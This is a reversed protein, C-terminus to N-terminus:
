VVVKVITAVRKPQADVATVTSTMTCGAGKVTAVGAVCPTHVPDTPPMTNLVELPKAPVTKLQVRSLALTPPIGALPVPSMLPVSVLLVPTFWVVFM